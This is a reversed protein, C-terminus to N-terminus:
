TQYGNTANARDVVPLILEHKRVLRTVRALRRGRLETEPISELLQLLVTILAEQRMGLVVITKTKARLHNVTNQGTSSSSMDAAELWAALPHILRLPKTGFM